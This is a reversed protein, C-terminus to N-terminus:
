DGVAPLTVREPNGHADYVFTTVGERGPARVTRRLGNDYSEYTWAALEADTHRELNGREDYEWTQTFGNRDSHTLM